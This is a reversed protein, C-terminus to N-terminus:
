GSPRGGATPWDLLGLLRDPEEARGVFGSATTSTVGSLIARRRVVPCARGGVQPGPRGADRLPRRGAAGPRRAPRRAAIVDALRGPVLAGVRDQWGLLEAAVVTASRVAAMPTM